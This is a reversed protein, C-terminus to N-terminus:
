RRGKLREDKTQSQTTEAPKGVLWNFATACADVIDDHRGKPFQKLEDVLSGNWKHGPSHELVTVNGAQQQAAFGTVRLEKSGTVPVARVDYGALMRSLQQAQDKGAQGPDQPFEIHTGPPDNLACERMKRRVDDASWQGRVLDRIMFGGTPLLGLLAGVTYDGAGDTAALDWARCWTTARSDAVTISPAWLWKDEPFMGGSPAQPTQQAQALWISEGVSLTMIAHM